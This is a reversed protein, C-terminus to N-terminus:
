GLRAPPPRFRSGSRLAAPSKKACRRLQTLKQGFHFVVETPQGRVVAIEVTREGLKEHWASLSYNGPPVGDITFEGNEGSVAFYPNRSVGVFGTM